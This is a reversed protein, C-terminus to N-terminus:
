PNKITITKIIITEVPKDNQGTKMKSITDVIDMGSVVKGFVPHKSSSPPKNFDLFTNDIVNIFFQSGGTNPGSNAMSLTGRVNSLDNHFEDKIAYGPGGTGVGKPCGTQVMFDPIVRHFVLGNYFGKNVLKIFNGTTLPAKDEFLEVNFKGKNTEFVAIKNTM